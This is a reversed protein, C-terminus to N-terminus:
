YGEEEDDDEAKEEGRKWKAELSLIRRIKTTIVVKKKIGENQM